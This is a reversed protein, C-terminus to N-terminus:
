HRNAIELSLKLEDPYIAHLHGSASFELVPTIRRESSFWGPPAKVSVQLATVRDPRLRSERVRFLVRGDATTLLPGETEKEEDGFANLAWVSLKETRGGTLEAEITLQSPGVGSGARDTVSWDALLDYEQGSVNTKGGGNEANIQVELGSLWAMETVKKGKPQVWTIEYRGPDLQLSYQGKDGATASKRDTSGPAQFEIQSGAPLVGRVTCPIPSQSVAPLGPLAAAVLGSTLRVLVLLTCRRSM